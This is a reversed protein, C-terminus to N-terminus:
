ALDRDEFLIFALLIALVSYLVCYLFSTLLYIPPIIMGTAISNHINFVELQPLATSFLGAMFRVPEFGGETVKVLIPTLHGLVFLSLCVILNVLMPMRTSIALSVSSLIAVEFFALLLGPLVQWVEIMCEATSPPLRSAERADYLVKTFVVVCFLVGLFLFMVVIPGLIGFFKGLIFQRRNIPKSLVTIATRGEIEDAVSGSATLLAMLLAAILITQLGTDKVMKVDEGFTNYPVLISILLLAAALATLLYFIPQRLAEKTTALAITLIKVM